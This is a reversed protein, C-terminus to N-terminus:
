GGQVMCKRVGRQMLVHGLVTLVILWFLQLAIASWAAQTSAAGVLIRLPADSIAAFPLARLV